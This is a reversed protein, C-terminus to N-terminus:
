NDTIKGYALVNKNLTVDAFTTFESPILLCVVMIICYSCLSEDVKMSPRLNRLCNYHNEFM